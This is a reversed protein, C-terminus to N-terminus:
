LSTFVAVTPAQFDIAPLM